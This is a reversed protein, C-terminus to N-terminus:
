FERKVTFDALELLVKRAGSEPLAELKSKAEAVLGRAREVVYDIAGARRLVDIAAKLEAESADLKGLAHILMAKDKQSATSLTRLVILTRKGERIDSGIPKGFKEQEGAVGLVDDHLQFAMGVLRGYEALARVKEPEGGGLLAGVKMSAELLAGTKGSVMRMYEAESVDARGEFLMDLAQGQCIEFSAKSVADFLEVVRPGDLELRKANAAVVEFVKAFLADGAIIAVPEGWLVHVTKVNRRFKDRDMIDDHILTFNHLLELAAAMEIADEAKGGVAECATLALCPRLRKGGAEIMHRTACALVEPELERPLWRDIEREVM